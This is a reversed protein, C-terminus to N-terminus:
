IARHLDPLTLSIRHDVGEWRDEDVFYSTFDITRHASLEEARFRVGHMALGIDESGLEGVEEWGDFGFHLRFPVRNEVVLSRNPPLLDFPESLRWHWTSAEPRQCAYRRGVCDLTELPRGTKRAALLKLFEAHAWVLPMVSGSPRGPYLEREPIPPADWVQEPILGCAGSMRAMSELYPLPDKGLLVDFHGREGTLLPWARGVGNGDFPRGDDYEGYADQDYRRFAVGSPTEVKLVAETVKVTNLIRPDRPDRLGLRPLYLYEMGVLAAPSPDNEKRQGVDIRGRLGRDLSPPALRVYYGEVGFKEQATESRCYTWDEIRENWYDALSLAYSRDKEELHEAAAVLAAIEIGITFPSIGANEEWRDQPSIPGSRAIYAAARETMRCLVPLEDRSGHEALKASLLIPFGVEDLQIGTWFPRGDPFSNQSWSGDAKQTAMLYTLLRKAAASSGIALLALATEVADRTWVLHYGGTSDTTNGWPISLSAVVSGPYTKGEHVKIAMASVWAERHLHDSAEPMAIGQAWAKWANASIQKVADFGQSLSSRALTRAGTPTNSFALALVGSQAPLEATLAVNGNLAEPYCWRMTGHQAFDQRGDSSGVYGASARSFGCDAMLFAAEQEKWALLGDEVRANNAFGTAGLHPTLLVYLQTSNGSLAFRVQLVDRSPDPVIELELRYSDAEHVITPLPIYPEPVSVRYANARGLEQWFDPGAVIFGLERIQPRGASPWYVENVTGHGITAWLRATGLATSVMDKASSTWTPAPGPAGPASDGLANPASSVM